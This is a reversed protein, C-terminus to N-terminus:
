PWLWIVHMHFDEDKDASVYMDIVEGLLLLLLLLLKIELPYCMQCSYWDLKDKEIVFIYM